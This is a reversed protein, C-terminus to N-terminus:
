LPSGAPVLANLDMMLGNQRVYARRNGNADDSEGVVEGNDNISNAVSFLDGPLTGLSQMGTAKTWLFAVPPSQDALSSVGVVQGKSNISQGINSNTGGLNGLDIVSGDTDWLVAHPGFAIGPLETNACTGSAGVAQGNDNISLAMGVTDGPLPNLQRIQGPNPGWIVAEYDLVQPGTGSMSVGPACNKDKTSTEAIGAIEGRRNIGGVIANPGGLTPLATM